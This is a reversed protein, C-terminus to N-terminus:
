ERETFFSVDFQYRFLRTNTERSEGRWAVVDAVPELADRLAEAAARVGDCTTDYVDFQVVWEDVDPVDDLYLEPGGSIVTWTAYPHDPSGPADAAPFIRTPNEGFVALVDSDGAVIQFVPPNM